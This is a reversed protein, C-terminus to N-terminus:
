SLSLCKAGGGRKLLPFREHGGNQLPSVERAGWRENQLVGRGTILSWDRLPNNGGM